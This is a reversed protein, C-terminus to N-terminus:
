SLSHFVAAARGAAKEEGATRRRQAQQAHRRKKDADGPEDIESGDDEFFLRMERGPQALMRDVANQFDADGEFREYEPKPKEETM